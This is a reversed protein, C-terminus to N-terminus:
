GLAGLREEIKLAIFGPIVVRFNLDAAADAGGLALNSEASALLPAALALAVATQIFLSKKM